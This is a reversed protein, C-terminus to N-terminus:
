FISPNKKKTSLKKKIFVDELRKNSDNDTITKLSQKEELTTSADRWIGTKNDFSCSVVLVTLFVLLLRKM